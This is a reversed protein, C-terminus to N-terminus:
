RVEKFLRTVISVTREMQFKCWDCPPIFSAEWFVSSSYRTTKALTLHRFLLYRQPLIVDYGTQMIRQDNIDIYRSIRGSTPVAIM